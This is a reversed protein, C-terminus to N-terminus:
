NIKDLAICGFLLFPGHSLGGSNIIHKGLDQAALCVKGAKLKEILVNKIRSAHREILRSDMGLCVM